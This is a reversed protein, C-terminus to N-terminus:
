GPYDADRVRVIFRIELTHEDIHADLLSHELEKAADPDVFVRTSGDEIVLDGDFPEHEVSYNWTRDAASPPGPSIRLGADTGADQSVVYDRVARTAEPTLVLM